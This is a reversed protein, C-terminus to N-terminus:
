NFLRPSTLGGQRVGCNLIYPDSFANAWKVVNIQSQYWHSYLEIVVHPVGIERLKAWLIDYSM